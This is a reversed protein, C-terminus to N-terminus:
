RSTGAMQWEGDRQSDFFTFMDRASAAVVLWHDTFYRKRELRGNSAAAMRRQAKLGLPFFFDMVACALFARHPYRALEGQIERIREGDGRMRMWPVIAAWGQFRDPHRMGILLANRGGISYGTLFVKRVNPYRALLADRLAVVQQEYAEGHLPLAYGSVCVLVYGRQRALRRYQGGTLVDCYLNPTEGAGPLAILMAQDQATGALVRFPLTMPAAGSAAVETLFLCLMPLFVKVM